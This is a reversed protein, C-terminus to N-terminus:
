AAELGRRAAVLREPAVGLAAACAILDPEHGELFGLCAALVTADGVRARLDDPALGTLAILREARRPEGLTWALAGLALTRMDENTDAERM